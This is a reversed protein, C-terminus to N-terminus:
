SYKKTKSNKYLLALNYQAKIHGNEAAKKYWYSAKKLDKNDKYYLIALNYQAIKNGNEAAKQYWYFAKELNKKTGEGIYYLTALNNQAVVHENEAAMQYWYLARKLNKKTGKAYQYYIALNYMGIKHGNEAAKQYQYVTKVSNKSHTKNKVIKETIKNKYYLAALNNQAKNVKYVNVAAKQHVVENSKIWKEIWKEEYNNYSILEIGGYFIHFIM